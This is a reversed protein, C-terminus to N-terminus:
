RCRRRHRRACGRAATSRRRAPCGNNGPYLNGAQDYARVWYGYCLPSGEPVSFDDFWIHGDAAYM